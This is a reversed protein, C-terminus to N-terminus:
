KVIFNMYEEKDGYTFVLRYTGSGANVKWSNSSSVDEQGAFVDNWAVETYGSTGNKKLLEVEVDVVVKKDNSAMIDVNLTEGSMVVQGTKDSNGDNVASVKLSYVPVETLEFTIYAEYATNLTNYYAADPASYLTLKFTAETVEASGGITESLYEKITLVRKNM